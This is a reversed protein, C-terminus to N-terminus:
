LHVRDSRLVSVSSGLGSATVHSGPAFSLWLQLGEHDPIGPVDLLYTIKANFHRAGQLARETIVEGVKSRERFFVTFGLVAAIVLAAVALRLVLVGHISTKRTSERHSANM